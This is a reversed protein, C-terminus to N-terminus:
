TRTMKIALARAAQQKNEPNLDLKDVLLQWFRHDLLTQVADADADTAIASGTGSEIDDLLPSDGEIEGEDDTDESESAGAGDLIDHLLNCMDHQADESSNGECLGLRSSVYHDVIQAQERARKASKVVHEIVSRKFNFADEVTTDKHKSLVGSM